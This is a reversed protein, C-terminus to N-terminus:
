GIDKVSSIVENKIREISREVDAIDIETSSKIPLIALTENL